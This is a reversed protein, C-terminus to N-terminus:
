LPASPLTVALARLCLSTVLTMVVEFYKLIILIGQLNKKNEFIKRDSSAAWVWFTTKPRPGLSHFESGDLQLM